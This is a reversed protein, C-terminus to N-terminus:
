GAVRFAVVASVWTWVGLMIGFILGWAPPRNEMPRVIFPLALGILAEGLIVYYPANLFMPVNQYFWWHADKALMEYVPINTGGMVAAAVISALAGKQKYVWWSIYGIQLLVYTWGLPMYLPSDIIFPGGREYVLTGSRVAWPDAFLLEVMGGAIGMLFLRGLVGDRRSVIYGIILLDIAVNLVTASIWGGGIAASAISGLLSLVMTGVVFKFRQSDYLQV